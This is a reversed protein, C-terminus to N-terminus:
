MIFTALWRMPSPAKIWREPPSLRKCIAKEPSNHECPNEVIGSNSDKWGGGRVDASSIWCLRETTKDPRTIFSAVADGTTLLPASLSHDVRAAFFIAIVKVLLTLTVVICLPPSYLLQCYEPAKIALCDQIPYWRPGKEVIEYDFDFPDNGCTVLPGDPGDTENAFPMAWISNNTWYNAVANGGGDPESYSLGNLLISKDGGDEVTLNQVRVVIAKTQLGIPSGNVDECQQYTLQEYNGSAIDQTLEHWNLNAAEIGPSTGFCKELAPTTLNLVNESSLDKPGAVLAFETSSFTQIVVSNYRSVKNFVVM